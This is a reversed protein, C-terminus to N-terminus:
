KRWLELLENRISDYHNDYIGFDKEKYTWVSYGIMNKKFVYDVDKFWRLTDEVPARDIVGFEGCYLKVDAKRAADIAATIMEEIFSIGMKASACKVVAEGQYGIPISKERYSEMTGPYTIDECDKIAPVWYAKQHTFLLPEYFHFTWIINKDAPQELFKLTNASNWQIGGYIIITDPANKRIVAVTKKILFNWSDTNEKEVVENLIEFAVNTFNSFTKSIKNWLNLFRQQLNENGFLNNKCSDGANNFDYGFVKHLDIIIDLGYTACWTIIKEVLEFGDKKYIGDETEFVEYDVPLRVHDFGDLKIRMIDEQLVFSNYHELKHNCQSLFGGLNIGHKLNM